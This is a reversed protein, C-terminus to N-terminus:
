FNQQLEEMIKAIEQNPSYKSGYIKDNLEYLKKFTKYAKQHNGEKKYLHGLSHLSTLVLHDGPQVMDYIEVSRELNKIAKETFGNMSQLTGLNFHAQGIYRHEEGYLLKDVELAEELASIAKPYNKFFTYVSAVQTLARSYENSRTGFKKKVLTLYKALASLSEEKMGQNMYWFSIDFQLKIANESEEGESEIASALRKQIIELSECNVIKHLSILTFGTFLSFFSNQLAKKKLLRFNLLNFSSKFTTKALFPSRITRFLFSKLLM